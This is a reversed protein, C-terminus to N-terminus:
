ISGSTASISVTRHRRGAGNRGTSPELGSFSRAVCPQFTPSAPCCGSTMGHIRTTPTSFAAAAFSACRVQPSDAGAYGVDRSYKNYINSSQANHNVFETVAPGNNWGIRFGDDEDRESSAYPPAGHVDFTLNVSRRNLDDNNMHHYGPDVQIAALEFTTGQHPSDVRFDVQADFDGVIPYSTLAAAGSYQGGGRIEIHLGKDQFIVTDQNAKSYGCTWNRRNIRKGSFKDEVILSPQRLLTCSARVARGAIAVVGAAKRAKKWQAPSLAFPSKGSTVIVQPTDKTKGLSEADVMIAACDLKRARTQADAGSEGQKAILVRRTQASATKAAKVVAENGAIAAADLLGFRNLEAVAAAVLKTASAGAPMLHLIVTTRRSFQLLFEYLTPHFLPMQTKGDWPTDAGHGKPKNNADLLTSQFANGADMKALDATKVQSVAKNKGTTESLSVNSLCVPVNDSTLQVGLTIGDAGAGLAGWYAPMTDSPSAHSEGGIAYVKVDSTM